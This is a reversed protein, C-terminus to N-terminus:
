VSKRLSYRPLCDSPLEPSYHRGREGRQPEPGLQDSGARVSGGQPELCLRPSPCLSATRGPVSARTASPPVAATHACRSVRGSLVMSWLMREYEQCSRWGTLNISPGRVGTQIDGSNGRNYLGARTCGVRNDSCGSRGYDHM